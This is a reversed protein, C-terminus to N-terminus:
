VQHWLKKVEKNLSFYKGYQSEVIDLIVLDEIVHNLNRIKTLTSLDKLTIPKELNALPKVIKYTYEPISDKGIRRCLQYIQEDIAPKDEILSLCLALSELQNHVRYPAEKQPEYAVNGMQYGREVRTVATRLWAVIKALIKLKERFWIPQREFLKEPSFDYENELFSDCKNSLEQQYSNGFLRTKSAMDMILDDDPPSRYQYRLFREGLSSMNYAQISNTVGMICTFLANYRRTGNGFAYSCSGDFAGRLLAFVEDLEKQNLAFLETADKLVLMKGNVRAMISTDVQNTGLNWGSVLATRTLRSEYIVKKSHRILELPLTKGCSPPGVLFLWPKDKGPINNAVYIAFTLKIANLLDPTLEYVRGCDILIEELSVNTTEGSHVKNMLENCHEPHIYSRFQELATEPSVKHEVVFDRIDYGIKYSAPWTVFNIKKVYSKILESVKLSGTVKGTVPDHTGYGSKDHDYCITVNRNSFLQIWTKKFINASPVGVVIAEYKNRWFLWDLALKDRYGEVIFVPINEDSNILEQGGVLGTDPNSKTSHEKKNPRFIRLDVVEGKENYAPAIFKEKGCCAIKGRFGPLPIGTLITFNRLQQESTKKLYKQYILALFDKVNGEAGCPKCSFCGSEKNVYFRKTHPRSSGIEECFPCSGIMEDNVQHSFEIGWYLYADLKNSM